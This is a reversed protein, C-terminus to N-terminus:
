YEYTLTTGIAKTGSGTYATANNDRFYSVSTGASSVIAIGIAAQVAGNDTLPNQGFWRLNAVTAATVPLTSSATTANSTGSIATAITCSNGSIRFKFVNVTTSSWGTNTPSHNFWQPFGQPAEMYSYRPSTIAANALSYDSGGNVTVTTNAGFTSGTVYFYKDTTQTLRLKTGKPFMATRDVGAITFTTASAYVWTDTADIYGDSGHLFGDAVKAETVADDALGATVVAGAALNTSDINGNLLATLLSALTNHDSALIVNGSAVTNPTFTSM